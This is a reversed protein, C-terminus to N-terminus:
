LQVLPQYFPPVCRKVVDTLAEVFFVCSFMTDPDLILESIIHAFVVM